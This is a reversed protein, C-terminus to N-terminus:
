RAQRPKTGSAFRTQVDMWLGDESKQDAVFDLHQQRFEMLRDSPVKDLLVRIATSTVVEWWDNEDRLHYGLQVHETRIDVLGAQELMERCHDLSRIRRSGFTGEPLQVGFETLREAFDDMMPQFATDEFSSFALRGGPQLVRTWDNVAAQMDPLFFLGYSCVVTHFYSSRFDLCQADMLHLDVNKLAMKGINAEARDLMRDSFDIAHVRGSAGVAQALPVAAAGTGTAVDLARTGPAPKVHNVLRDACFPFFRTSPNDYDQAIREFIQRVQERRQQGTTV